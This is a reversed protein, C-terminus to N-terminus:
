FCIYINIKFINKRLYNIYNLLFMFLLFLILWVEFIFVKLVCFKCIEDCFLYEGKGWEM